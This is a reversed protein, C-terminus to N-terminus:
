LNKVTLNTKYYLQKSVETELCSGGSFIKLSKERLPMYNNIRARILFAVCENRPFQAATQNRADGRRSQATM